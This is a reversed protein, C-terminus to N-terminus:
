HNGDNVYYCNDELVKVFIPNISEPCLERALMLAVLHRIYDLDLLENTLILETPKLYLYQDINQNGLGMIPM